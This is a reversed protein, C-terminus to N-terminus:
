SNKKREVVFHHLLYGIAFGILAVFFILVILSMSVTWFLLKVSAVDSNQIVIVLLLVALVLIVIQKPKMSFGGMKRNVSGTAEDIIVHQYQDPFV